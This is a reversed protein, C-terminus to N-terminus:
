PACSATTSRRTSTASSSTHGAAPADTPCRACSTTGRGSARARCRPFPHVAVLRLVEGGPLTLAARLQARGESIPEELLRLPRRAMLGTGAARRRPALARGPLLERAGAADLRRVAGPTLEQLSLVDVDHERALALM